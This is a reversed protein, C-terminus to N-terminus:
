LLREYRGQRELIDHEYPALWPDDKVLQLSPGKKEAQEQLEKNEM